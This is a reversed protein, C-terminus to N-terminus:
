IDANQKFNDVGLHWGFIEFRFSTCARQLFRVGISYSCAILLQFFSTTLDQVEGEKCYGKWHVKM